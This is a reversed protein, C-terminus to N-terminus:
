RRAATRKTKLYDEWAQQIYRPLKDPSRVEDSDIVAVSPAACLRSILRDKGDFVDIVMAGKRQYKRYVRRVAPPPVAVRNGIVVASPSHVILGSVDVPYIYSPIVYEDRDAVYDALIMRFDADSINKLFRALSYYRADRAIGNLDMGRPRTEQIVLVIPGYMRAVGIRPSTFIFHTEPDPVGAKSAEFKGPRNEYLDRTSDVTKFIKQLIQTHRTRANKFAEESSMGAEQNKEVLSRLGRSQHTLDLLFRFGLLEDRDIEGSKRSGFGRYLVSFSGNRIRKLATASNMTFMSITEADYSAASVYGPLGLIVVVLMLKSLM